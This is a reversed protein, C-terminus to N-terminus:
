DIEIYSTSLLVGKETSLIVQYRGSALNSTNVLIYNMSPGVMKELVIQGNMGVLSLNAKSYAESLEYEIAFQNNGPNPYLLFDNPPNSFESEGVSIGNGNCPLQCGPISGCSRYLSTPGLGPIGENLFAFVVGEDDEVMSSYLSPNTSVTSEDAFIHEPLDFIVTGDERIIKVFAESLDMSGYSILYEINTSDCDFLTRSPHYLNYQGSGVYEVPIDISSILTLDTNYLELLEDGADYIMIAPENDSLYILRALADYSGVFDLQSYAPFSFTICLAIFFLRM